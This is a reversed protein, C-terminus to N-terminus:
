HLPENIEKGVKLYVGHRMVHEHYRFMFAILVTNRRSFMLFLEHPLENFDDLIIKGPCKRAAQKKASVLSGPPRTAYIRAKEPSLTM